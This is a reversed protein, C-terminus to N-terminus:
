PGKWGEITMPEVTVVAPEYVRIFQVPAPLRDNEFRTLVHLRGTAAHVEYRETIKGGHDTKREVYFAPGDWWAKYEVNRDEELEIKHGEGDSLFHADWDPYRITVASDALAIEFGDVARMLPEMRERMENPDPRRGTGAGPMGGPPPGGAPGGAARMQSQIARLQERPDDSLSRNLKWPGSISPAAALDAEQEQALAAETAATAATLFAAALVHATPKMEGKGETRGDVREFRVSLEFHPKIGKGPSM